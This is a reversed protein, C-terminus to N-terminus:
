SGVFLYEQVRNNNDGVKHGQNGFSYRHDVAVVEIHRKYQALLGLIEERTPLANSAYSVLLLSAQHRRFLADLAERTGQLTTFPTPYSKFKRTKTQWQMEVGEWNRVLGEVFHYRRVYENDSLPSFYPPDLYVLDARQDCALADGHLVRNAQGNEFVAANIQEVAELFQERLSLKLDRRGDDYRHGTYAFIGRPRKKLCARVLAALALARKTASGLRPLNARVTDIFATDEDSYYLGRFTRLVFDDGPTASDCLLAAEEDLLTVASNEILARALMASCAMYDNSSVQKGQAKFLYSVVGSGSFLDLVSAFELRAAVAWLQGLLNQKSGMFRTSPFRHVQEPLALPPAAERRMEAVPLDFLPMQQAQETPLAAARRNRPTAASAIVLVDEGTRKSADKNINRRTTHVEIEYDAYLEHVLPHNSNTLLVHCGLAYLRRVEEALARHDAAYFQEKTYRKFDSYLSIPLYPPDLFILDGPQAHERLVALYDGQVITVGQLARSAARLNPADCLVVNKYHGYPVNFEGRRNVRYLGNFCTHNLYLTRAAQEVATLSAPDTARIAYYTAEDNRLPELAVILAEVEEALVRYLTILEPNSDAILARKPALAFFLAGGGVFPEIYRNYRQPIHRMLMELMQQKGGAWKLVPKAALAAPQNGTTLENGWLVHTM